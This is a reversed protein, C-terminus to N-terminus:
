SFYNFSESIKLRFHTVEQECREGNLVQEKIFDKCTFDDYIMVNCAYETRQSRECGMKMVSGDLMTVLTLRETVM